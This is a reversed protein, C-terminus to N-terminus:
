RMLEYLAIATSVAVNFSEKHGKMPIELHTKCQKLVEHNVGEVENGVVLVLKTPVEFDKLDTSTPTQELAILEFKQIKLHELVELISEHHEIRISKEAGLATKNIQKDIKASLYPLRKDNELLPYPTIGCLFVKSVGFGDASRLISGVNHTSRINDLVLVVDTQM